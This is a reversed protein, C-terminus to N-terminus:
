RRSLLLRKGHAAIIVRKGQKIEPAINEHWFPLVRDLTIQLCCGLCCRDASTM